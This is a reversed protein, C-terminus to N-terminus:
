KRSVQGVGSIVIMNGMVWLSELHQKRMFLISALLFHIAAIPIITATSALPLFISEVAPTRWQPLQSVPQRHKPVLTTRDCRPFVAM